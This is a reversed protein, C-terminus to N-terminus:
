AMRRLQQQNIQEELSSHVINTFHKMDELIDEDDSASLKTIIYTIIAGSYFEALFRISSESLWRNSLIFRIDDELAPTYLNILYTRLSDPENSRLARRYYARREQLVDAFARLFESSDLSRVGTKLRVYYPLDPMSEETMPEFVLQSEEFRDRLMRALDSRFIWRILHTKSEFHYYFTKRNKQSAAVIDSVSIKDFPMNDSLEVFTDGLLMMTDISGM